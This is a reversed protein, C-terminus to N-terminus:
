QERVVEKASKDYRLGLFRPHRLKGEPTWEAFGIQAVLKPRVWHVGRNPPDGAAFLNSMTELQALQKGLHRLLEENFGTGVKGAYVLKGGKYYGVLLAGFGIRHGQPDTYGGIVFEQEKPV